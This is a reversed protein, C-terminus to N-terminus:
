LVGDLYADFRYGTPARMGRALDLRILGDLLSVGAGLSWLAADSDWLERAGAWGADGFVSVAGFRVRRQLEARARVFDPGALVRPGYGRLTSPGGLYWTRQVPLTGTSTGGGAELGLRMHGPLPLAARGTLSARAYEFDGGSSGMLSLDLGAQALSPDTGWWPSVLLLGGVDWGEDAALNDRFHWDGDFARGLAFDAERAVAQHREAFARVRFSQRGTVPPTWELWAGSRRYYDGDDRGFLAANLSNGLELHRGREDVAALEHFGSLTVRRELTERVVDLRANPHLDAVGLRGVGTVTIPGVPTQPRVQARMGLSLAEVRNYRVLDPRQLGWRVSTPVGQLPPTPLDALSQFLESLERESAFGPADEWIPPPLEPSERLWGPDAPVLFRVSRGNRRTSSADLVYPVSDGLTVGALYEMAESRTRFHVERVGDTSEERLDHETVVAEMEYSVDVAAPAKLIGAAIVGEARMSRPMWVDFDWLAYDVAVMTLDFTWPKLIGPIFKLDDEEEERLDPIDRFADFTGSLRYVARVLAGSEPEIWLSGSMRHVDAVTPVVRLEVARIRRGEPLSLTLTDGSSFTYSPVYEPRLPHEFWFDEDGPEGLDEETEAMGFFLRDGDLPDFADDFLEGPDPADSVGVPTEERLALVQVLMGGERNWFVRQSSESRYLTRDKLPTRLSAGIRQRVVATYQVVSRDTRERAAMAAEHLARTGADAYSGQGAAQAAAAGAWALACLLAAGGGRVARNM